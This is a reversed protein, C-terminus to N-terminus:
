LKQAQVDCSSLGHVEVFSEVHHLSLGSHQLQSGVYAFVYYFIKKFFSTLVDM